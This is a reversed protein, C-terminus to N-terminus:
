IHPSPLAEGPASVQTCIHFVRPLPNLLSPTTLTRARLPKPGVHSSSTAVLHADVEEMTGFLPGLPAHLDSVNLSKHRFDYLQCTVAPHSGLAMRM